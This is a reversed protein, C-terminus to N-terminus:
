MYSCFTHFPLIIKIFDIPKLSGYPTLFRKAETDHLTSQKPYMINIPDTFATCFFLFLDNKEVMKQSKEVKTHFHLIAFFSRLNKKHALSKNEHKIFPRTRRLRQGEKKRQAM